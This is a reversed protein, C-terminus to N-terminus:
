RTLSIIPQRGIPHGRDNLMVTYIHPAISGIDDWGLVSIEASNDAM